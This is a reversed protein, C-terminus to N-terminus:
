IQIEVKIHDDVKSAFTEADKKSGVISGYHMPIAVKPSIRNVLDAAELATMTYTGGVPVLAVDCKVSAAEETLDTDGAIYVYQGDCKINYGIWGASKPHFAKSVNYASVTDFILGNVAYSTGPSVPVIKKVLGSVEQAKKEMNEPVVLFTSDGVVKRIDEPSFHDHHDHTVLIFDADNREGQIQFPDVYIVGLECRIRISSHALVEINDTMGM